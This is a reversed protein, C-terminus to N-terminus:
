CVVPQPALSLVREYLQVDLFNIEAIRQKISEAIAAPPKRYVTFNLKRGSFENVFGAKEKLVNMMSDIQELVGVVNYRQHLVQFAQEVSQEPTQEAEDPTKGIFRCVFNNRLESTLSSTAYAELPMGSSKVKKYLYHNPTRLVYNYHSIIRKVPDRLVTFTIWTDSIEDLLQHAGHGVILHFRDRQSESLRKYYDIYAMQQVGRIYFVEDQRYNSMLYNVISTGGCKPVHEFLVRQPIM